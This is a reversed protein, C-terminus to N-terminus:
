KMATETFARASCKIWAVTVKKVNEQGEVLLENLPKCISATESKVIGCKTEFWVLAKSRRRQARPNNRLADNQILNLEIFVFM